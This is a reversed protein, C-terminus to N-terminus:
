MEIIETIGFFTKLTTKSNKMFDYTSNKVMLYPRRDIANLNLRSKGVFLEDNCTLKKNDENRNTYLLLNNNATLKSEEIVVDKVKELL